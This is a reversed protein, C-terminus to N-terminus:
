PILYFIPMCFDWIKALKSLMFNSFLKRWLLVFPLVKSFLFILITILLFKSFTINLPWVQWIVQSTISLLKFKFIFNVRFFIFSFFSTLSTLITIKLFMFSFFHLFNFALNMTSLYCHVGTSFKLYRPSCWIKPAFKGLSFLPCCKQFFSVNM